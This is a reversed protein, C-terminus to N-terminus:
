VPLGTWKGTARFARFHAIVIPLYSERPAAGVLRVLLDRTDVSRPPFRQTSALLLAAGGEGRAMEAREEPTLTFRAEQEAKAYAQELEAVRTLQANWRRELEAAM